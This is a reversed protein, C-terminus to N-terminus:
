VDGMKAQKGEMGLIGSGRWVYIFCNQNDPIEAEFRKGSKIRVDLYTILTRTEIYAKTGLCEGAIVKITAGGDLISCCQM